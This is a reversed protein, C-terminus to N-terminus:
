WWWETQIGFMVASNQTNANVPGLKADQGEYSVFARLQPRALLSSDLALTPAFAIKYSVGQAQGGSNDVARGNMGGFQDSVGGEFVLSVNKTLKWAPRIVASVVASPDIASGDANKVDTQNDYEVWVAPNIDWDGVTMFGSTIFRYAQSDQYTYINGIRGLNSYLYNGTTTNSSGVGYLGTGAQVALTAYGPLGYLTPMYYTLSGQVGSTSGNAIGTVTAANKAQGGLVEAILSDLLKYRVQLNLPLTTTGNGSVVSSNTLFALDLKGGLLGQAGIGAGDLARWKFDDIHIDERGYNRQGIWITSGPDFSFGGMEIFAQSLFLSKAADSGNFDFYYSSLQLHVKAWAGDDATLKNVLEADFYQTDENGLRGVLNSNITLVGPAATSSDNSNQLDSNLLLSSRQYGHFEFTDDAAVFQTSFVLFAAVSATLLILKAKM